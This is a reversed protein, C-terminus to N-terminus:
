VVKGANELVSYYGKEFQVKSVKKTSSSDVTFDSMIHAARKSGTLGRRANVRYVLQSAARVGPIMCDFFPDLLLPISNVTYSASLLQRPRRQRSMIPMM